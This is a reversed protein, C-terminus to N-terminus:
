RCHQVFSLCSPGLLSLVDKRSAGDKLEQRKEEILKAAVEHAYKKNERLRVMGPSKNRDVFWVGTGEPAWAFADFWFLRGKSPKGFADFSHVVNTVTTRSNQPFPDECCTRM